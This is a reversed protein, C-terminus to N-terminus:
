AKIVYRKNVNNEIHKKKIIYLKTHVSKSKFLPSNSGIEKRM